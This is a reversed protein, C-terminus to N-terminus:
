VRQAREVDETRGFIVLQDETRIRYDPGPVVPAIGAQGRESERKRVLVVRAHYHSPLDAELLTKGWLAAPPDWLGMSFGEVIEKNGADANATMRQSLADVTDAKLIEDQYAELADTYRLVGLLRRSTKDEVVPFETYGSRPFALLAESLTQEPTLAPIDRVMLDEAMLRRQLGGKEPLIHRATALTIVGLLTRDERTVYLQSHEGHLMRRAVTEAPTHAELIDQDTRMRTRVPTKALLDLSRGKYLDIGRRTLKLTYISERNWRTVIVTSIICVLMLPLIISYSNTIEFVILIATIPALTAGAVLGGMGVLAYGGPDCSLGGMFFATLRGVLGGVMAGLFLSPAFVGGSGGSGLTLSTAVLKGVLLMLLMPIALQGSLALDVIGRGDGMIQPLFLALIGIMFGGLAPRVARPIRRLGDFADESRYLVRIYAISVIGCLVGLLAYPILEWTSELHYTSVQFVSANGLLRRSVVTALVSSIVIPSFQAVGFEGLIVEVAFLAGAIPANFTAAIGAAAGCGVLTRLRKGSVGLGQGLSSGIAAGIQIIPGERGASGGSAITLSSAVAKALAVRTRIVGNRLAVALMVEPVGHGKAEPAFRTVIWGVLLGGVTPAALLVYWPMRSLHEVTLHGTLWFLRQFAHIMHDFLVGSIGGLLGIVAAVVIMFIHDTTRLRELWSGALRPIWDFWDHALRWPKDTHSPDEQM